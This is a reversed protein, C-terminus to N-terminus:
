RDSIEWIEGTNKHPQMVNHCEPTHIYRDASQPVLKKWKAVLSKALEGAVQHKRFSNVTKGVGTEQAFVLVNLSDSM